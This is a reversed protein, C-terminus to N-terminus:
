SPVTIPLLLLALAYKKDLYWFRTMGFINPAVYFVTKIIKKLKKINFSKLCNIKETPSISRKRGCLCFWEKQDIKEHSLSLSTRMLIVDRHASHCRLDGGNRSNAWDNTWTCMLSFCLEADRAKTLPIWWRGVAEGLLPGTFRFLNGNSSTM